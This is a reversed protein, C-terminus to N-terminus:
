RDVYGAAVLGLILGGLLLRYVIFVLTSSRRLYHLLWGISLYGVVAAIAAGILMALAQDAAGERLAADANMAKLWDYLDKVGAALVSPLSLLFSFRAASPRALGAFLGATITTGSRSGGPMLALAQFCGILIADFYTLDPEGRQPKGASRRRASWWEAAAMLLAFTISVYAIAQPNYFAEKLRKGLLLGVVVVPATGVVILKVMRGAPTASHILRRESLDRLFGRFLEAIDRRFYWYVAILTGLQIVVTFPDHQLQQRSRGLLEQVILLHATSSIPLFETLGQVVGLLVVQWVPM